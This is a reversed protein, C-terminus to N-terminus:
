QGDMVYLVSQMDQVPPLVTKFHTLCAGTEVSALVFAVQPRSGVQCTQRGLSKFFPVGPLVITLCIHLLLSLVWVAAM